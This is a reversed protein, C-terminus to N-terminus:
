INYINMQTLDLDKEKLYINKKRYKWLVRLVDLLM